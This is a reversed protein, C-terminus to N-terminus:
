AGTVHKTGKSKSAKADEFDQGFSDFEATVGGGRKAFKPPHM